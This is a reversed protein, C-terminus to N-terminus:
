GRAAGDFVALAEPLTFASEYLARGVIAGVVNGPAVRALRELDDLTTIGGSQIIELTTNEALEVLAPLNPGRMMGDTAVDTFVIRGVGRDQLRHVFRSCAMSSREMWGHTAVNGDICDVGVVLRDGLCDVATTLVDEHTIAATGIVVWRVSSDAVRRLSDASRVGGGYEVPIGLAGAIAEVLSFNVLEGTRAADLDVVHLARAGLEEWQRAMDLPDESFVTTQTFDGRRLRVVRGGQIDVAPFLIL